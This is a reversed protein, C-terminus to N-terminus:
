LGDCVLPSRGPRCSHRLPRLSFVASRPIIARRALLIYDTRGAERPDYIM